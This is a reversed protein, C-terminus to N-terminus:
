RGIGQLLRSCLSGAQAPVPWIGTRGTLISQPSTFSRHIRARGGSFTKERPMGLFDQRDQYDQGDQRQGVHSVPNEAIFGGGRPGGHLAVDPQPLQGGQAELHEVGGGPDEVGRGARFGPRDIDPHIVLAKEHGGPDVGM